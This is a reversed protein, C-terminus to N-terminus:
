VLGKRSVRLHVGVEKAHSTSLHTAWPQGYGERQWHEGELRQTLRQVIFVLLQAGLQLM